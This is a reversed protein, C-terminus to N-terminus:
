TKKQGLDDLQKQNNTEGVWDKFKEEVLKQFLLRDEKTMNSKKVAQRWRETARQKATVAESYEKPLGGPIEETTCYKGNRKEQGACTKFPIAFIYFDKPDMIQFSNADKQTKVHENNMPFRQFDNLRQGSLGNRSDICLPNNWQDTNPSVALGVMALHNELDDYFTNYPAFEVFLDIKSVNQECLIIPQTPTTVHLTIKSCLSVILSQCPAILTVNQCNHLKVGISIPGLVVCLNTCNEINVLKLPSLLYIYSSHCRFIKIFAGNLLSTQRAITQSSCQSFLFLKQGSPATLANTVVKSKKRQLDHSTSLVNWNLQKGFNLCSQLGYPNETLCSVLWNEFKHFSFCSKLPMYGSISQVKPHMAIELLSYVTNKQAVRGQVVLGIVKIIEPAITGNVNHKSEDCLLDVLKSFNSTFFHLHKNEDTMSSSSDSRTSHGSSELLRPSTGPWEEGLLSKRLSVKNAQQLFLFLVFELTPVQMQQKYSIPQKSELLQQRMEAFKIREEVTQNKLTFYLQFYTWALEETMLMKNVAMHKWIPWSLFPYGHKAKAYTIVKKLYSVTLKTHAYIVGYFFVDSRLWLEVEAM